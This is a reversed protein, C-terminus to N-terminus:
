SGFIVKAWKNNRLSEEATKQHIIVDLFSDRFDMIVNQSFHTQAMIQSVNESVDRSSDLYNNQKWYLINFREFLGFSGMPLFPNINTTMWRIAEFQTAAVFGNLQVFSQLNIQHETLRLNDPIINYSFDLYVDARQKTQFSALISFQNGPIEEKKATNGGAVVAEQLALLLELGKATKDQIM